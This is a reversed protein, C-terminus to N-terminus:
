NDWAIHFRGLGPILAIDGANAPWNKVLPGSKITTQGERGPTVKKKNDDTGRQWLYRILIALKLLDIQRWGITM